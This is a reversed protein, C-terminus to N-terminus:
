RRCITSFTCGSTRAGIRRRCRENRLSARSGVSGSNTSREDVKAFADSQAAVLTPPLGEGYLWADVEQLTLKTPEARLLHETLYDRFQSTSV